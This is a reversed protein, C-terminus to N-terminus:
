PREKMPEATDFLSARTADIRPRVRDGPRVSARRPVLIHVHTGLWDVLLTTTPGTHEVVRVVGEASAEGGLLTIHEPRVGLLREGAGSADARMLPTGDGAKWHGGDRRVPLLNMAPQGLQLAVVPSAPREYIERPTGVQLVRGQSLVVIRDAMTLAEAQDHTVFVMPTKLERRLEVLEVRLAERLKADLNTLPEDMLFLRPRRVIARGIAVRQMEGGSLRSPERDLYRTIHLIEAAWGIRRKIEDEPVARGPARLPFELNRRVTWRPYLSFNQFVLAIDRSAPDAATVDQGGLSITGRDPRELGAITRLLTTKGAGTPGLVVLLEDPNAELDVGRLAETQGLRKHVGRVALFPTAAAPVPATGDGSREAVNPSPSITSPGRTM